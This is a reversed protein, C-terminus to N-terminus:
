EISELEDSRQKFTGISIPDSLFRSDTLTIRSRIDSPSAILRERLFLEVSTGEHKRMLYDALQQLLVDTRKKQFEYNRQGEDRHKTLRHMNATEKRFRLADIEHGMEDLLKKHEPETLMNFRDDYITESLMFWRHYRLRPWHLERNPFQGTVQEGDATSVQYELLHSPGPDPAFFRYGHGLFLAQHAPSVARGLPGTLHESPIPNSLPGLLVVALYAVIGLSLLTRVVPSPLKPQRPLLNDTVPM